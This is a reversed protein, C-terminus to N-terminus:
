WARKTSHNRRTFRITNWHIKGRSRNIRQFVRDGWWIRRRLVLGWRRRCLTLMKRQLIGVRTQHSVSSTPRSDQEQRSWIIKWAARFRMLIMTLINYIELHPIAQLKLLVPIQHRPSKLYRVSQLSFLNLNGWNELSTGKNNSSSNNDIYGRRIKHWISILSGISRITIKFVLSGGQDNEIKLTVLDCLNNQVAM